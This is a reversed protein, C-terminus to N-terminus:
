VATMGWVCMSGNKSQEKTRPWYHDIIIFTLVAEQLRSDSKKKHRIAIGYRKGGRKQTNKKREGHFVPEM